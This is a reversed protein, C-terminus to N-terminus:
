TFATDEVNRSNKQIQAFKPTFKPSNPVQCVRAMKIGPALGKKQGRRTDNLAQLALLELHHGAHHSAYVGRHDAKSALAM